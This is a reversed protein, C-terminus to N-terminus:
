PGGYRGMDARTGNADFIAPDGANVCSSGSGLHFDGTSANAFVPDAAINGSSGVASSMGAFTAPLTDNYRYKPPIPVSPAAATAGATVSPGGSNHLLISNAVTLDGFSTWLGSGAPSINGHVVIFDIAARPSVPPCPCPENWSGNAGAFIGGGRESAQNGKFVSRTLTFNTARAYLGGGDGGVNDAVTLGRLVVPEFNDDLHIGGGRWARNGTIVIDELTAGSRAGLYMNIGGGKSAKNGSVEGGRVVSSDNDLDMGGGTDVATNNRVINNIVQCPLHGVRIGGGAGDAINQEVVNAELRCNSEFSRIGGGDDGAHNGLFRNARLTAQSQFIYIGGGDNVSTSGSVTNDQFLPAHTEVYIGGGTWSSQNDAFTNNTVPSSSAHYLGGGRLEAVNSQLVNGLLAVTGERVHIGGGLVGQNGVFQCQKVQGSSGSLFAGGGENRGRNQDFRTRLVDLDCGTAALGGGNQALNASFVSDLISLTSSACRVGGGDGGTAGNRFTLGQVTVGSGGTGAIALVSGGASGDVITVAAGGTGVLSLPKANISLRERYTGPCIQITAGSPAAAIAAAISTFPAGTPCVQLSGSPTPGPDPPAPSSAQLGLALDFVLDSSSAKQQHVEVAITNVGAVLFNKQASWNFTQYTNGAERSVALTAATTTGAPMGDSGVKQGNLYVIFGDDYMVEGSMGTVAAPDSVSFTKRFYSTIHRNTADPGFSVATALYSEGYGLPAAGSSWSSSDYSSTRWAAGLDGGKDWYSWSSRRSIGGSPPPPTTGVQAVLAADFVLDSSSLSHQHIEIALTNWGAQLAGRVASADFSGYAANAEHSAAAFTTHSVTGTPMSARGGEQGNVYFVFGDDYMVDLRLSAVQAPDEVFFAKRFYVTTPKNAPDAGYSITNVYSEGYGLPATGSSQGGPPTWAHQRWATGLNEGQNWYFWANARAVYVTETTVALQRDQVNDAAECALM